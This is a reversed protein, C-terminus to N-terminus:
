NPTNVLKKLDLVSFARGGTAASITELIAADPRYPPLRNTPQPSYLNIGYIPFSVEATPRRIERETFRSHNDVGDSIILM